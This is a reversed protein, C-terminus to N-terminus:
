VAMLRHEPSFFASFKSLLLGAKVWTTRGKFLAASLWANPSFAFLPHAPSHM